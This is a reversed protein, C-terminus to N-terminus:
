PQRLQRYHEVIRVDLAKVRQRAAKAEADGSQGHYTALAAVAMALSEVTLMVAAGIDGVDAAFHVVENTENQVKASLANALSHAPGSGLSYAGPRHPFKEAVLTSIKLSTRVEHGGLSLTGSHPNFAIGALDMRKLLDDYELDARGGLAQRLADPFTAVTNKQSRSSDVRLATGRLLRVDYSISPDLLHGVIVAGECTTRALTLHAFLPLGDISLVKRLANAHDFMNAIILRALQLSQAWLGQQHTGSATRMASFADLEVRAPSTQTREAFYKAPAVEFVALQQELARLATRVLPHVPTDPNDQKATMPLGYPGGARSAHTKEVCGVAHSPGFGRSVTGPSAVEFM